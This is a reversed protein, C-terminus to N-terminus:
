ATSRYGEQRLVNLFKICTINLSLAVDPIKVKPPGGSRNEESVIIGGRVAAVAILFPDAGSKGKRLDILTPFRVLIERARLQIADDLPIFNDEWQSVWNFVEDDQQALEIYIEDISLIRGSSLLQEVFQWVSEFEPKPYSRRLETFSCTDFWLTPPTTTLAAM